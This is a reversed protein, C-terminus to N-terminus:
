AFREEHAAVREGLENKNVLLMHTNNAHNEKKNGMWQILRKNRLRGSTMKMQFIDTRNLTWFM